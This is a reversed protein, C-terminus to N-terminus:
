QHELPKGVTRRSRVNRGGAPVVRRRGTIRAAADSRQNTPYNSKNRAFTTPPLPIGKFDKKAVDLAFLLHCCFNRKNFINCECALKGELTCVGWGYVPQDNGSCISEHRINNTRENYYYAKVLDLAEAPMTTIGSAALEAAHDNQNTSDEFAFALSIAFRPVIGLVRCYGPGMSIDPNSPVVQLLANDKLRRFRQLMKVSPSAHMTFTPAKFTSYEEAISGLLLFSACLGHKSRQTYIGVPIM